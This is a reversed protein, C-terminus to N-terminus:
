TLCVCRIVLRSSLLKGFHIPRSRKHSRLFATLLTGNIMAVIINARLLEGKEKVKMM